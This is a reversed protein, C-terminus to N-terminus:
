KVAEVYFSYQRRLESAPDLEEKPGTSRADRFGVHSLLRIMKEEDYICHHEGNQYANYNIFDVIAETGAERAPLVQSREIVAFYSADNKLYADFARRFDPLSVRFVGGMELARHCDRLLRFGQEPELHEFFHSSYILSCSEPSVPLGRRLDYNIFEVGDPASLAGLALDINVWGARLDRGCGLHIKLKTRARLARYAPAAARSIRLSRWERLWASAARVLPEHFERRYGLWRKLISRAAKM